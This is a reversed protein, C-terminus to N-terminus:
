QVSTESFLLSFLRVPPTFILKEFNGGLSRLVIDHQKSPPLPSLPLIKVTHRKRGMSNTIM